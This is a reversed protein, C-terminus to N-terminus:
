EEGSECGLEKMTATMAEFANLGELDLRLGGQAKLTVAAWRRRERDLLNNRDPLPATSLVRMGHSAEAWKRRERDLLNDRDPPPPSPVSWAVVSTGVVAGARPVASKDDVTGAKLVTGAHMQAVLNPLHQLGGVAPVAAHMQAVLNPLHQLGGVAPVAAQAHALFSGVATALAQIQAVFGDLHGKHVPQEVKSDPHDRITGTRARRARWRRVFVELVKMADAQTRWVNRQMTDLVNQQRMLSDLKRRCQEEILRIREDAEKAAQVMEPHDRPSRPTIEPHDRPSRAEKAAQVMEAELSQRRAGHQAAALAAELYHMEAELEAARAIRQEATSAPLLRTSGNVFGLASRRVTQGEYDVHDVAEVAELRAGVKAKAPQVAEAEKVVRPTIEPHDRSLRAEKVVEPAIEPHDRPSRAEKAPQVAEAELSQHQGLSATPIAPSRRRAKAMMLGDGQTLRAGGAYAEAGEDEEEPVFPAEESRQGTFLRQSSPAEESRQGTFLRQSSPEEESRQGTFLRQSSPEEESRQGTFLRQSSPEEESRQGTFLRQSSPEEESRQGTFLRQSSPEEEASDSPVHLQPPRRSTLGMNPVGSDVSPRGLGMYLVGGMSDITNLKWERGDFYLMGNSAEAWKLRERDLLNDPDPAPATSLVQMGHSAEAWKRRERDLLNDPDPAPLARLPKTAAPAPQLLSLRENVRVKWLHTEAEVHSWTDALWATSDVWIHIIAVLAENACPPKRTGVATENGWLTGVAEDAAGRRRRALNAQAQKQIRRAAASELAARAQTAAARAAKASKKALEAASLAKTPMKKPPSRKLKRPPRDKTGRCTDPGGGDRWSPMGYKSPVGYKSRVRIEGHDGPALRRAAAAHEMATASSRDTPRLGLKHFRLAEAHIQSLRLRRQLALQALAQERRERAAALIDHYAKRRQEYEPHAYSNSTGHWYPSHKWFQIMERLKPRLLHLAASSRPRDEDGGDGGQAGATVNGKGRQGILARVRWSVDVDRSRRVEDELAEEAARLAVLEDVVSQQRRVPLESASEWMKKLHQVHGSADKAHRDGLRAATAAVRAQRAVDSLLQDRAVGHASSSLPQSSLPGHRLEWEAHLAARTEERRKQRRQRRDLGAGAEAVRTASAEAVRAGAAAAASAEKVVRPTIEPCDRPLRAEKVVRAQRGVSKSKLFASRAAGDRASDLLPAASSVVAIALLLAESKEASSVHTDAGGDTGDGGGAAAALLGSMLLARLKRRAPWSKAHEDVAAALWIAELYMGYRSLEFRPWVDRRLVEYTKARRANDHLQRAQLWGELAEHAAAEDFPVGTEDFPSYDPVPTGNSSVPTGIEGKGRASIFARMAALGDDRTLVAELSWSRGAGAHMSRALPPAAATKLAVHAGSTAQRQQAGAIFGDSHGGELRWQEPSPPGNVLFALLRQQVAAAEEDDGSEEEDEDVDEDEDEDVDEDEDEDVDEDEEEDGQDLPEDLAAPQGAGGSFGAARDAFTAAAPDPRESRTPQRKLVGGAPVSPLPPPALPLPKRPEVALSYEFDDSDDEFSVPSAREAESRGPKFTGPLPKGGGGGAAKSFSLGAPEPRWVMAPEDTAINPVTLQAPPERRHGWPLLRRM